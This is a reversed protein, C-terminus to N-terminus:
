SYSINIKDEKTIKSVPTKYVSVELYQEVKLIQLAQANLITGLV